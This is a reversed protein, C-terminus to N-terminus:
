GWRTSQSQGQTGQEWVQSMEPVPGSRHHPGPSPSDSPQRGHPVGKPAGQLSRPAAEGQEGGGGGWQHPHWSFPLVEAEVSPRRGLARTGGGAEPTGAPLGRLLCARRPLHTRLLRKVFGIHISLYHCGQCTALAGSNSRLVRQVRQCGQPAIVCRPGGRLSQSSARGCGVAPVEAQQCRDACQGGPTPLTGSVWLHVDRTDM